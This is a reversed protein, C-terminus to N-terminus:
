EGRGAHSWVFAQRGCFSINPDLRIEQDGAALRLGPFRRTLEALALCSELRGLASAICFRIGRGFALTRRANERQLDFADPEAFVDPDRGAAALWLFM